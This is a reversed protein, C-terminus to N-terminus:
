GRGRGCTSIAHSACWDQASSRVITHGSIPYGRPVVKLGSPIKLLTNAILGMILIPFPMVTRTTQKAISKKLIHFIHGCIDIEKHTFLDFLFRTRAASLTTLNTVPYLNYLMIHALAMKPTFKLTNMSQKTPTGGLIQIMKEIAGIIDEYQTTIPQSPPCVELFDQIDQRTIM